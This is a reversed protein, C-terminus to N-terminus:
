KDLIFYGIDNIVEDSLKNPINYESNDNKNFSPMMLHNLGPYLKFSVNDKDKLFDYYLKYDIDKFVQFDSEGQIIFLKDDINYLYDQNLKQNISYWYRASAGLIKEDMDSNEDLLKIKNLEENFSALQEDVQKISEEDLEKILENYLHMNQDYILDAINRMSGAMMIAGKIDNRQNLIYPILSAGLSHGLIYINDKDILPHNQCRDILYNIDNLIEDEVTIKDNALEPYVYYRKDYRITAIGMEKLGESLDKFPKNLGVTMDLDSQGIGQILIICPVKYDKNPTTLLANLPYDKLYDIKIIEHNNDLKIEFENTYEYNIDSILLDKDLKFSLKINKLNYDLNYSILYENNKTESRNIIFMNLYTGAKNKFEDINHMFNDLSLNDKLDHNFGHYLKDYEDNIFYELYTGVYTEVKNKDYTIKNSINCGSLLIFLLIIHLKKM